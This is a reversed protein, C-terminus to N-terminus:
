TIRDAYCISRKETLLWDLKLDTEDTPIQEVIQLEFGLAMKRLFPYQGLFGDYFGGGYGIRGGQLDFVTGPLIMLSPRSPDPFVCAQSTGVPEPIGYAGTQLGSLSNIKYFQMRGASEVKPVAVTKGCRWAEKLIAETGAERRYDLYCFLLEAGIFWPHAVVRATIADTDEQWVDQPLAERRALIRQRIENKTEM